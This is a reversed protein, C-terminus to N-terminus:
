HLYKDYADLIISYMKETNKTEFWFPKDEKTKFFIAKRKSFVATPSRKLEINNLIDFPLFFKKRGGGSFCAIIGNTYIIYRQRLISLIMFTIGFSCAGLVVVAVRLNVQPMKYGLLYVVRGIAICLLVIAFIDINIHDAFGKTIVTSGEQNDFYFKKGYM